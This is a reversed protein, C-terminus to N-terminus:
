QVISALRHAEEVSAGKALFWGYAMCYWDREDHPDIESSRDYINKRYEAILDEM